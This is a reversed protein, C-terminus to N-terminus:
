AFLPANRVMISEALEKNIAIRSDHVRLIMNGDTLSIPTLEAGTMIGLNELHRRTKGDAAVRIVTITHGHPAQCLSM